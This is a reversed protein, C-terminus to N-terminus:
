RLLGDNVLSVWIEEESCMGVGDLYLGDLREDNGEV